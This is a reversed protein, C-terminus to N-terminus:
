RLGQAKQMELVDTLYQQRAESAVMRGMRRERERQAQQGKLMAEKMVSPDFRARERLEDLESKKAEKKAWPAEDAEGENMRALMRARRAEGEADAVEGEKTRIRKGTIVSRRVAEEGEDSKKHKKHKKHRKKKKERREKKERKKKERRRKRRQAQSSESDSSESDSGSSGLDARGSAERVSASAAAECTSSSAAPECANSSSVAAECTSSSAERDDM